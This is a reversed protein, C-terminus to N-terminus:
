RINLYFIMKKLFLEKMKVVKNINYKVYRNMKKATIKYNM